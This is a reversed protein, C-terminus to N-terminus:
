KVEWTNNSSILFETLTQKPKKEQVESIQRQVEEDYAPATVNRIVGLALPLEDSDTGMLALKMQLTNDFTTADHVLVDYITYGDEGITVAKLNWGDLVLGKNMDKGFLMKKGQKLFITM